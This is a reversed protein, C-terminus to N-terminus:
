SQLVSEQRVTELRRAPEVSESKDAGVAHVLDKFYM